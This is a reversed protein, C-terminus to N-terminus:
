NNTKGQNGYFWSEFNRQNQKRWRDYTTTTRKDDPVKATTDTKSKRRELLTQIQPSSTKGAFYVHNGNPLIGDVLTNEGRTLSNMTSKQMNLAEDYTVPSASKFSYNGTGNTAKEQIGKIKSNLGQELFQNYIQVSREIQAGSGAGSASAKGSSSGRGGM